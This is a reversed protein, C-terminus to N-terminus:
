RETFKETREIITEERMRITSREIHIKILCIKRQFVFHDVKLTEPSSQENLHCSVSTQVRSLCIVHSFMPACPSSFVAFHPRFLLMAYTYAYFVLSSSSQYYFTKSLRCLLALVFSSMELFRRSSMTFFVSLNRSFYIHQHVIPVSLSFFAPINSIEWSYIVFLM